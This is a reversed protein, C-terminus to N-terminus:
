ERILFFDFWSERSFFDGLCAERFFYLPGKQWDRLCVAPLNLNNFWIGSMSANLDFRHRMFQNGGTEGWEM